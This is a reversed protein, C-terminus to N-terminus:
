RPLREVDTRSREPSSGSSSGIRSTESWIAASRAFVVRMGTRSCKAGRDPSTSATGASAADAGRGAVDSRSTMETGPPPTRRPHDATPRHHPHQRGARESGWRHRKRRNGRLARNGEHARSRTKGDSPHAPSRRAGERRRLRYSRPAPPRTAFSGSAGATWSPRVSGGAEMRRCLGAEALDALESLSSSCVALASWDVSESNLRCERTTPKIEPGVTVVKLTCGPSPSRTLRIELRSSSIARDSAEVDTRMKAGM